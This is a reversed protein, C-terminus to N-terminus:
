TPKKKKANSLLRKRVRLFLSIFVVASLLYLILKLERPFLRRTFALLNIVWFVALLLYTSRNQSLLKHKAQKPIMFIAIVSALLVVTQLIILLEQSRTLLVVLLSVFAILHLAITERQVTTKIQRAMLAMHLSLIALTSFYSVLPLVIFSGRFPLIELVEESLLSLVQVLRFSYAVAFYLFVNRFHFIGKHQSIRYLDRTRFYIILCVSVVILFYLLETVLLELPPGQFFRQMIRFGQSMPPPM